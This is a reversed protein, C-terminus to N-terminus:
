QSYVTEIRDFEGPAPPVWDARMKAVLWPPVVTGGAAARDMLRRVLVEDPADFLVGVREWGKPVRSLIRRRAKPTVNTADVVVDLGHTFADTLRRRYEKDIPRAFSRWAERYSVGEAKAVAEVVDDRSVAIAQGDRRALFATRWTTKGSGPPGMLVYVTPL